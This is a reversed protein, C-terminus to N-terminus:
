EQLAMGIAHLNVGPIYDVFFNQGPALHYPGTVVEVTAGAVGAQAHCQIVMGAASAGRLEDLMTITQGPRFGNMDLRGKEPFYPINKRTGPDFNLDCSGVARLPVPGTVEAVVVKVKSPPPPPPALPVFLVDFGNAGNGGGYRIELRSGTVRLSNGHDRQTGDVFIEGQSSNIIMDVNSGFDVNCRGGDIKLKGLLVTDGQHLRVDGDNSLGRTFGEGNITCDARSVVGGGALATSTLMMAVAAMFGFAGLVKLIKGWQM